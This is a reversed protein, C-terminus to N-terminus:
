PQQRLEEQAKVLEALQERLPQTAIRHLRGVDDMESPLAMVKRHQLQRLRSDADDRAKVAAAHQPELRDAEEKLTQLRQDRVQDHHQLKARVEALQTENEQIATTRIQQGTPSKLFANWLPPIM